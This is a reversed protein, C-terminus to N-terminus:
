KKRGKRNAKIWKEPNRVRINLPLDFELMALANLCMKLDYPIKDFEGLKHKAQVYGKWSITEKTKNYHDEWYDCLERLEQKSIGALKDITYKKM